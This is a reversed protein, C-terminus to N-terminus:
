GFFLARPLQISVQVGPFPLVGEIGWEVEAQWFWASGSRVFLRGENRLVVERIRRLAGGRGPDTFRSAGQILVAELAEGDSAGRYRPNLGLSKTLGVGKDVVALHIHDQYERVAMLGWPDLDEGLPNAHQPINQALELMAGALIRISTEGLPFRAALAECVQDVLGRVEGEEGVRSIASFGEEEDSVEPLARDIWIGEAALRFLGSGVLDALAEPSEPVLLRMRGGAEACQRAYLALFAAAFPDVRRVRSLDVLPRPFGRLWQRLVRNLSRVDLSRM